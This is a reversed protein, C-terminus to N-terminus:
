AKLLESRVLVFWVLPFRSVCGGVIKSLRIRKIKTASLLLDLIGSCPLNQVNSPPMSVVNRVGLGVAVPRAFINTSGSLLPLVDLALALTIKTIAFKMEQHINNVM